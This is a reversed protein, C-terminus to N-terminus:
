SGVIAIGGAIVRYGQEKELDDHTVVCVSAAAFLGFLVNQM